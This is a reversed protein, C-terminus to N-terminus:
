GEGDESSPTEPSNGLRRVVVTHAILDGLRQRLPTVLLLWGTVLDIPRLLNRLLISAVPAPEGNTGVVQLGFIAKGFSRGSLLECVLPLGLYVLGGVLVVTAESADSLQGAAGFRLGAVIFLPLADIAGAALRLPLPALLPKLDAASLSATAGAAMGPQRLLAISALLLLGYLAIETLREVQRMTADGIKVLSPPLPNGEADTASLTTPDLSLQALLASVGEDSLVGEKLPLTRVLRVSGLAVVAARPDPLTELRDLAVAAFAEADLNWPVAVIEPAQGNLRVLTEAEDGFVYLMPGGLTPQAHEVLRFREGATSGALQWAGNQLVYVNVQGADSRAALAPSGADALDAGAVQVGQPLEVILKWEGGQLTYLGGDDGLALLSRKGGAQTTHRAATLDLFIVGAPAAPAASEVPAARPDFGPDALSPLNRAFSLLRVDTRPTPRTAALSADVSPVSGLLVAVNGDGLDALARIPRQYRALAQWEDSGGAVMRRYLGAVAVRANPDSPDPFVRTTALLESQGSALSAVNTLAPTEQGRAPEAWSLACLCAFCALISALKSM